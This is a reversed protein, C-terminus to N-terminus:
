KGKEGMKEWKMPLTISHLLYLPLSRLEGDGGASYHTALDRYTPNVEPDYFCATTVGSRLNDPILLAPSGNITLTM